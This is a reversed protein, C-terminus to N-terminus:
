DESVVARLAYRNFIVLPLLGHIPGPHILIALRNREAVERAIAEKGEKL